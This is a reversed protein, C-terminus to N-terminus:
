QNKRTESKVISKSVWGMSGTPLKVQYWDGVERVVELQENEKAEYVVNSKEDSREYVPYGTSEGRVVSEVVNLMPQAPKRITDSTGQVEEKRDKLVAEKFEINSTLNTVLAFTALLGFAVSLTVRTSTKSGGAVSMPDDTQKGERERSKWFVSILILVVLGVLAVLGVIWLYEKNDELLKAIGDKEGDKQTTAPQVVAKKETINLVVKEERLLEDDLFAEIKLYYEGKELATTFQGSIEETVGSKIVPLNAIDHEELVKDLLDMVTIKLTPSTDVNGKNEAKLKVIVPNGIVTEEVKINLVALKKIEKETVEIDGKLQLGQAITVGRVDADSPIARLTFTGPYAKYEASQPVNVTVKFDMTRAGKQFKFTKGPTFTLWDNAVDMDPEVVIDMESLDGSRSILYTKTYTSGPQLFDVTFDSPSIGFGAHAVVGSLLLLAVAFFASKITNKINNM